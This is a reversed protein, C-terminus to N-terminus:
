SYRPFDFKYLGTDTLIQIFNVIPWVFLVLFLIINIGPIWMWIPISLLLGLQGLAAGNHGTYFNHIGFGGLFFCLLAAVTKDKTYPVVGPPVAAYHMMQQPPIPTVGYNTQGYQYPQPYGQVGVDEHTYGQQRPNSIFPNTLSESSTVEDNYGYRFNDGPQPNYYNTM